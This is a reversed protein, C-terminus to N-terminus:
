KQLSRPSKIAADKREQRDGRLNAQWEANRYVSTSKELTHLIGNANAEVFRDKFNNKQADYNSGEIYTVGKELVVEPRFSKPAPYLWPAEAAYGATNKYQRLNLEFTLQQKDHKNVHEQM